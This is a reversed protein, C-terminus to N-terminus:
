WLKWWPYTQNDSKQPSSSSGKKLSNNSRGEQIKEDLELLEVGMFMLSLEKEVSGTGPDNIADIFSNSHFPAMSASVRSLLSYM